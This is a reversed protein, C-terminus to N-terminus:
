QQQGMNKEGDPGPKHKAPAHLWLTPWNFSISLTRTVEGSRRRGEKAAGPFATASRSRWTSCHQGERDRPTAWFRTSLKQAL